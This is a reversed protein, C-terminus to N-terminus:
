PEAQTSKFGCIFTADRTFLEHIRRKCIGASCALTAFLVDNVQRHNRRRSRVESFVSTQVYSSIGMGDKLECHTITILAGPVLDDQVGKTANNLYVKVRHFYPFTNV